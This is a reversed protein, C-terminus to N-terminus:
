LGWGNLNKSRDLIGSVQPLIITLLLKSKYFYSKIVVLRNLYLSDIKIIIVLKDYFFLSM